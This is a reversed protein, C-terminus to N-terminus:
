FEFEGTAEGVGLRRLWKALLTLNFDGINKWVERIEARPSGGGLQVMGDEVEIVVVM